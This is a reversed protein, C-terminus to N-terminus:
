VIFFVISTMAITTARAMLVIAPAKASLWRGLVLSAFRSAPHACKLTTSSVMAPWTVTSNTLVFGYM